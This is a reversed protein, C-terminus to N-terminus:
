LGNSRLGHVKGKAERRKHNRDSPPLLVSLSHPRGTLRATAPLPSPPPASQLPPSDEATSQALTRLSPLTAPALCASPGHGPSFAGSDGDEFVKCVPTGANENCQIEWNRYSIRCCFIVLSFLLSKQQMRPEENRKGTGPYPNNKFPQSVSISFNHLILRIQFHNRTRM